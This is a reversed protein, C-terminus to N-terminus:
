SSLTFFHTHMTHSGLSQTLPESASLASLNLLFNISIYLTLM